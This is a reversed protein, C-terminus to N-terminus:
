QLKIFSSYQRAAEASDLSSSDFSSLASIPLIPKWSRSELHTRLRQLSSDLTPLVSSPTLVCEANFNYVGDFM